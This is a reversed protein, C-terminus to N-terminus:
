PRRDRLGGAPGFLSHCFVVPTAVCAAVRALDGARVNEYGDSVVAVLDPDDDLATLLADALDTDGAPPALPDAHDGAAVLRLNPCCRELALRLAQSQAIGCWLRDGYGAMSASTDLVLALRGAFQPLGAAARDVAQTL